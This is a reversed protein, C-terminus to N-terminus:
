NTFIGFSTWIVPLWQWGARHLVSMACLSVQLVWSECWSRCLRAAPLTLCGLSQHLQEGMFVKQGAHLHSFQKWANGTAASKRRIKSYNARKSESISEFRVEAETVKLSSSSLSGSTDGPTSQLWETVWWCSVSVSVERSLLFLIKTVSETIHLTSRLSSNM